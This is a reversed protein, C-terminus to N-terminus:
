RRKSWTSSQVGSEGEATLLVGPSHRSVISLEHAMLDSESVQIPVVIMLIFLSLSETNGSLTLIICVDIQSTGEAFDPRWENTIGRFMRHIPGGPAILSARM